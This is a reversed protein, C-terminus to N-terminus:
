RPQIGVRVVKWGTQVKSLEIDARRHDEAGERRIDIDYDFRVREGRTSRGIRRWNVQAAAEAPLYGQERVGRTLELERDLMETAGFATFQRASQQDMRQFYAEVFQDAVYEPAGQDKCAPLLALVLAVLVLALKRRPVPSAPLSQAPNM